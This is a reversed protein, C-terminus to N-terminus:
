IARVAIAKYGTQRELRYATTSGEIGKTLIKVGNDFTVEFDKEHIFSKNLINQFVPHLNDNM